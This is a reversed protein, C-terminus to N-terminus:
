AADHREKVLRPKSVVVSMSVLTEFIGEQVVENRQNVLQRKWRVLGRRRGHARKDIVENWVHVTDGFFIPKLFQWDQVAVFADTHVRPFNSGLGAVLSLGLLGHAIPKGFPSQKASEFDVHLPDFDGTLGAFNMVDTETITRARSEWSQGIELEDFYLATDM